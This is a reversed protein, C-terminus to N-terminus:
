KKRGKARRGRRSMKNEIFLKSKKYSRSENQMKEVKLVDSVTIYSKM